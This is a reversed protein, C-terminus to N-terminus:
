DDESIDKKDKNLLQRIRENRERIEESNERDYTDLEFSDDSEDEITKEENQKKFIDADFEREFKKCVASFVFIALLVVLAAFFPEPACLTIIVRTNLIWKYIPGMMYPFALLPLVLAEAASVFIRNPFFTIFLTRSKEAREEDDDTFYRIAVVACWVSVFFAVACLVVSVIIWALLVKAFAINASEQAEGGFLVTRSLEFSNGLLSFTSIPADAKGETVFRYSPIFMMLLTLLILIPPLIYRLYVLIQKTQDKQKKM